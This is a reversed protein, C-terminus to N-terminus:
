HWYHIVAICGIVPYLDLRVSSNNSVIVYGDTRTKQRVPACASHPNRQTDISNNTDM